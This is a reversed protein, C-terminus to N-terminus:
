EKEQWNGDKKIIEILKEVALESPVNREIIEKGRYLVVKGKGQGIYGYDADAMEGPGNVICGMVAIKFGKLHSMREKVQETVEMLDFMTRGCSPCAIFETKTIRTRTAQLIGFLTETVLAAKKQVGNINSTTAILGDGFGEILLLGFDASAKLIFEEKSLDEFHRSILVPNKVNRKVLEFFLRRQEVAGNKNETQVIFAVNNKNLLKEFDPNDLDDIKIIIFNLVDSKKNTETYESLKFVPYTNPKGEWLDYNSLINVNKPPEFTLRNGGICIFDAAIEKKEWKDSDQHWVYGAQSFYERKIETCDCFETIVVPPNSGGLIGIKYSERKKYEFPNVIQESLPSISKHKELGSFLSILKAAVPPEFEPPETLSIRITDGIGDALLAGIGVSSKIRAENGGGAETVGLHLPYNMREAIMKNVLMRYSHIMILVNSSKMSFVLNHFDEERCIRAFELCSEVMGLPTDGYRSMMRPSLSGHNTGIRLATNNQKCIKILSILKEKAFEYGENFESETFDNKNRSWKEAFNGPNIRVKDAYLAAIEAAEHTFHIDAVIPINCQQETLRLKINKINEAEKISPATIRAIECGSLKLKIIQEVTAETDITKTNTMSQIRIPNNGGIGIDGVIVEKTKFRSFRTLSNCYNIKKM